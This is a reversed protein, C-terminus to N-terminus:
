KLKEVRKHFESLTINFYKCLVSLTSVSINTKATEIRGIHINIDNFVEEQTVNSEDRLEIIILAIKQLLKVDRIQRMSEGLHKSLNTQNIVYEDNNIIKTYFYGRTKLM